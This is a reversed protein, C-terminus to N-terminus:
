RGHSRHEPPAGCYLCHPPHGECAYATCQQYKHPEATM